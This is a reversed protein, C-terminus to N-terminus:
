PTPRSSSTRAAPEGRAVVASASRIPLELQGSAALSVSVRASVTLAAVATVVIGMRWRMGVQSLEEVREPTLTAARSRQNGVWAGLRIQGHSGASILRSWGPSATIRVAALWRWVTRESKGLAQAVLRVHAATLEGRSDLDLLRPMAAARGSALPFVAMPSDGPDEGHSKPM